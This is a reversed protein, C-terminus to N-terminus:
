YIKAVSLADLIFPYGSVSTIFQPTLEKLARALFCHLEDLYFFLEWKNTQISTVGVM